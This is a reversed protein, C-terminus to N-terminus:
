RIRYGSPLPLLKVQEILRAQMEEYTTEDEDENYASISGFTSVGVLSKEKIKFIYNKEGKLYLTSGDSDVIIEHINAPMQPVTTSALVETDTMALQDIYRMTVETYTSTGRNEGDDNGGYSLNLFKDPLIRLSRGTGCDDFGSAIVPHISALSELLTYSQGGTCVDGANFVLWYRGAIKKIDGGTGLVVRPRAKTLPLDWIYMDGPQWFSRWSMYLKDNVVEFNISEVYDHTIPQSLLEHVEGTSLDFYSVKIVKEEEAYETFFLLKKWLAVHKNALDAIVQWKGFAYKEILPGQNDGTKQEPSKAPLVPHFYVTLLAVLLIWPILRAYKM